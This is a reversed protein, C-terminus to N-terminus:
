AREGAVRANAQEAMERARELSKGHEREHGFFTRYGIRRDICAAQDYRDDYEVVYRQGDEHPLTKWSM